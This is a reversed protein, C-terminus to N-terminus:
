GRGMAAITAGDGLVLAHQVPVALLDEVTVQLRPLLRLLAARWPAPIAIDGTAAPTGSPNSAAVARLGRADYIKPMKLPVNLANRAAPSRASRM